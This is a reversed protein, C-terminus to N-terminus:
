VARDLCVCVSTRLSHRMGHLSVPVPSSPHWPHSHASLTYHLLNDTQPEHGPQKHTSAAQLSHEVPMITSLSNRSGSRYGGSSNMESSLWGAAACLPPCDALAAPGTSPGVPGGSLGVASADSTASAACCTPVPVPRQKSVQIGQLAEALGSLPLEFLCARVRQCRRPWALRVHMLRVWVVVWGGGCM